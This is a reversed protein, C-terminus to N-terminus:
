LHIFNNTESMEDIDIILFFFFYTFFGDYDM